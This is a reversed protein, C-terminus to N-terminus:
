ESSSLSSGTASGPCFGFASTSQLIMLRFSAVLSSETTEISCHCVKSNQQPQKKSLLADKASVYWAYVQKIAPPRAEPRMAVIETLLTKLTRYFEIWSSEFFFGSLSSLCDFFTMFSSWAISVYLASTTKSLNHIADRMETFRPNLNLLDDDAHLYRAALM